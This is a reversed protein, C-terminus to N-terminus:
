GRTPDRWTGSEDDWTLYEGRREEFDMSVLADLAQEPTDSSLIVRTNDSDEIELYGRGAPSSSRSAWVDKVWEKVATYADQGAAAGAATGFAAFFATIPTTLVVAVIWPLVDASWSRRAYDAELDPDFGYARFAKRVAEIEEDTTPDLHVERIM